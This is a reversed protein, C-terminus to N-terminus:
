RQMSEQLAQLMQKQVQMLEPHQEEVDVEDIFSIGRAKYKAMEGAIKSGPLGHYDTGDAEWEFDQGARSLLFAIFLKAANPHASNNPIGAAFYAMGAGESPIMHGVKAGDHAAKRAEYDGCDPFFIPFEGSAVREANGCRIMGAAQPGLKRFFEVSGQPGLVQPLALFAMFTTSIRVGIKGKWQPDLLDKLSQPAKDAPILGTNYTAGILLTAYAVGRKGFKMAAEPLEPVLERWDVPLFLRANSATMSVAYVDTSAPRKAAQEQALRAAIEPGSPGPTYTFALNTGFRRNILGELRHAGDTGGLLAGWSLTIAGEAKAAAVIKELAPPLDAASARPAAALLLLAALASGLGTFSAKV